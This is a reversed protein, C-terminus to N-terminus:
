KSSKQLRGVYNRLKNRQTPLWGSYVYCIEGLYAEKTYLKQERGRPATKRLLPHSIGLNREAWRSNYLLEKDEILEYLDKMLSSEINRDSNLLSNNNVSDSPITDNKNPPLVDILSLDISDQFIAKMICDLCSQFPTVIGIGSCYNFRHAMYWSSSSTIRANHGTDRGCLLWVSEIRGDQILSDVDTKYKSIAKVLNGTEPFGKWLQDM